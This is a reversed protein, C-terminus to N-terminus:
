QINVFNDLAESLYIKIKNEISDLDIYSSVKRKTSMRYFGTIVALHYYLKQFQKNVLQKFNYNDNEDKSAPIILSIPVQDRLVYSWKSNIDDSDFKVVLTQKWNEFTKDLTIVIEQSSFDNLEIKKIKLISLENSKAKKLFDMTNSILSLDKREFGRTSSLEGLRGSKIEDVNYNEGNQENSKSFGIRAEEKLYLTSLIDLLIIGSRDKDDGLKYNKIQKASPNGVVARQDFLHIWRSFVNIASDRLVDLTFEELPKLNSVQAKNTGASFTEGNPLIISGFIKSSWRNTNGGIKINTPSNKSSYNPFAKDNGRRLENSLFRSPWERPWSVYGEKLPDFNPGHYIARNNQILSFGALNDSAVPGWPYDPNSLYRNSLINLDFILDFTTDRYSKSNTIENNYTDLILNSIKFKIHSFSGTGNVLGSMFISALCKAFPYEDWLNEEAFEYKPLYRLWVIEYPIKKGLKRGQYLSSTRSKLFHKEVDKLLLKEFQFRFDFDGLNRKFSKIENKDSQTLLRQFSFSRDAEWDNKTIKTYYEPYIKASTPIELSKSISLNIGDDNFYHFFIEIKPYKNVLFSYREFLSSTLIPYLNKLNDLIEQTLSHNNIESFDIKEFISADSKKKFDINLWFNKASNYNTFLYIESGCKGSPELEFDGGSHLGKRFIFWNARRVNSGNIIQESILVSFNGFFNMASKMGIFYQNTSGINVEDRGIKEIAKQIHFGQAKDAIAIYGLKQNFIIDIPLKEETESYSLMNEYSAKSNDIFESLLYVINQEPRNWILTKDVIVDKFLGGDGNSNLNEM